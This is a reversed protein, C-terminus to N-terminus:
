TLRAQIRLLNQLRSGNVIDEMSKVFVKVLMDVRVLEVEVELCGGLVVLFPPCLIRRGLCVLRM